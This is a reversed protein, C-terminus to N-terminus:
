TQLVTPPSSLLTVHPTLNEIINDTNPTNLVTVIDQISNVDQHNVIKISIANLIKKMYGIITEFQGKADALEQTHAAAAAQAQAAAAAQQQAQAAEAAQQAQTLAEAAAQQQTQAEAQAAQATQLESKQKQITEFLKQIIKDITTLSEDNAGTM